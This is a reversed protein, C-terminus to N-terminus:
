AYPGLFREGNFHILHTPNDAIWVETEWAIDAAYQRFVSRDPFATVYVIGATSAGFLARLEEYRKPDVPGHSTVAEVLLLWGRTQDYLVVDPMKGAPDLEVGLRRLLSKDFYVFKAGTDGVYLLQSGPAFRPAFAEVIDRILESHAGSSLDLETGDPLVVPVLAMSRRKRYREALTPQKSVYSTLAPKWDLSGFTCLLTHASPEIQYCTLGSNNPRTPDDPNLVALGADVFQHITRRRITERTNPAYAKGYHRAIWEIIPTIGLMPASAQSWGAGPTLNLLALLVLASRENQQQPPLGLQELVDQAQRVQQEARTM